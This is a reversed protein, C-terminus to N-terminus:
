LIGESRSANDRTWTFVTLCISCEATLTESSHWFCNTDPNQKVNRRKKKQVSVNRGNEQGIVNERAKVGIVHNGQSKIPESSREHRKHSTVKLSSCVLRKKTTCSCIKQWSWISNFNTPVDAQRESASKKDSSVANLRPASDIDAMNSFLSTWTVRMAIGWQNLYARVGVFQRPGGCM